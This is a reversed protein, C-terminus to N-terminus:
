KPRESSAGCGASAMRDFPVRSRISGETTGRHLKKVNINLVHISNRRCCVRIRLVKILTVSSPKSREFLSQVNAPFEAVVQCGFIQNAVLALLRSSRFDHQNLGM